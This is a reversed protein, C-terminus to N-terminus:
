NCLENLRDYEELEEQTMKTKLDIMSKNERYYQQEGKDLRKGKAKKSRINIISTLLCEGMAQFFGLFTWWHMYELSRIECGATKNVASFILQEDQEWDMLKIKNKKNSSTNHEGGDLFISAKNCAEQILKSDMNKFDEYLADLMVYTKSQKSLDPDNLAEFILLAIRFDSRIAWAKGGLEITAPLSGIM